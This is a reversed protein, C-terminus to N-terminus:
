VFHVKTESLFLLAHKDMKSGSPPYRLITYHLLSIVQSTPHSTIHEPYHSTTSSIAGLKHYQVNLNPVVMVVSDRGAFLPDTSTTYSWTTTYSSAYPGNKNLGVGVGIHGHSTFGGEVKLTYNCVLAAAVFSAGACGPTKTEFGAGGKLDASFARIESAHASIALKKTETEV